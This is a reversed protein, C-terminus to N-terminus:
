FRWNSLIYEVPEVGKHHVIIVCISRVDHQVVGRVVLPSESFSFIYRGQVTMTSAHRMKDCKDAIMGILGRVKAATPWTERVYFEKSVHCEVASKTRSCLDFQDLWESSVKKVINITNVRSVHKKSAGKFETILEDLLAQM